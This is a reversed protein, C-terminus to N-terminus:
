IEATKVCSEFTITQTSDDWTACADLAEAVFRVPAMIQGSVLEPAVDMIFGVGNVLMVNSGAQMQTVRDNVLLTISNEQEVWIYEVDLGQAAYLVPVFTRDNKIYPAVDMYRSQGDVAYINSGVTFVVTHM